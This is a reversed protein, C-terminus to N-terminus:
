NLLNVKSKIYDEIQDVKGHCEHCVPFFCVRGKNKIGGFAEVADPKPVFMGIRDAVFDCLICDAGAFQERVKEMHEESMIEEFKM